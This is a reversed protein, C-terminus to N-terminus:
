QHSGKGANKLIQKEIDSLSGMGHESIKKLIPDIENVFYSRKAQAKTRERHIVKLRRREERNEFWELLRDWYRLYLYGFLYGAFHTAHALGTPLPLVTGIFDITILGFM